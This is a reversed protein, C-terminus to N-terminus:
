SSLYRLWVIGLLKSLFIMKVLKKSNIQKVIINNHRAELTKLKCNSIKWAEAVKLLTKM